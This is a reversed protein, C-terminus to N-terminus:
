FNIVKLYRVRAILENYVILKKEKEKKLMM